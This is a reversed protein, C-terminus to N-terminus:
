KELLDSRKPTYSQTTIFRKAVYSAVNQKYVYLWDYDNEKYKKVVYGTSNSHIKRMDVYPVTEGLFKAQVRWVGCGDDVILDYSASETIPLSVDYGLETFDYIAKSLALDGKKQTKRKTDM